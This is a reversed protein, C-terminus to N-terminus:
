HRISGVDPPEVRGLRLDTSQGQAMQMVAQYRVVKQAMTAANPDSRHFLMWKITTLNRLV